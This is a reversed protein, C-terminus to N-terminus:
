FSNKLFLFFNSEESAFFGLTTLGPSTAVSDTLWTGMLQLPAGGEACLKRRVAWSPQELELMVYANWGSPILLFQLM